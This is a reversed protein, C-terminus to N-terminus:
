RAAGAGSSKTRGVWSERSEEVVFVNGDTTKITVKAGVPVAAADACRAIALCRQGLQVYAVQGAGGSPIPLTVEAEKGIMGQVEGVSSGQTVRFLAAFLAFVLVAFALGSGLSLATSALPGWQWWRLAIWGMGGAATLFASIVTPSLPSFTSLSHQTWGVEPHGEGATPGVDGGLQEPHAGHADFSSGDGFGHTFAGSMVASVLTFVFGLLFLGFFINELLEM